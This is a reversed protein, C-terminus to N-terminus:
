RSRGKPTGKIVIPAGDVCKILTLERNDYFANWAVSMRQVGQRQSGTNVSRSNFDAILRARPDNKKLGDNRVVGGIFEVATKKCHRLVYLCFAMASAGSLKREIYGEGGEMLREFEAAESIWETIEELRGNRSKAEHALRNAQPEMGTRLVILARYLHHVTKRKLGTSESVGVGDLMDMDSRKSEPTDFLAYLRRVEAMDAAPMINLSNELVRGTAAIATCRHQGNILYLRGDPTQAFTIACVQPNWRGHEIDAVREAVRADGIRRQGEFKTEELIKKAIGPAIKVSGSAKSKAFLSRIINATYEDSDRGSDPPITKLSPTQKAISMDVNNGRKMLGGALPSKTARHRVPFGDFLKHRLWDTILM